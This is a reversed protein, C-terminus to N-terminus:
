RGLRFRDFVSNREESRVLKLIADASPAQILAKRFADENLLHSIGALTRVHVRFEDRPLVLLVVLSAPRGDLCDFPIGRQSVGLAGFVNEIRPSAGHPLAIGQEMGTAASRERATVIEVIHDRLSLPIDGTAVLLQTLEQIAAFKDRAQLSSTIVGKHLIQGLLM